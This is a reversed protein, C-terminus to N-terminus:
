GGHVKKGIKGVESELIERFSKERKADEESDVV